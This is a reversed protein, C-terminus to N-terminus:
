RGAYGTRGRAQQQQGQAVATSARAGAPVKLAEREKSTIMDALVARQPSADRFRGAVPSTSGASGSAKLGAAAAAALVSPTRDRSEATGLAGPFGAFRTRTPSSIPSPVRHNGGSLMAGRSPSVPSTKASGLQDLLVRRQMTPSQPRAFDDIGAHPLHAAQVALPAGHMAPAPFRLHQQQRPSSPPSQQQQPVDNAKRLISARRAPVPSSAPTTRASLILPSSRAAQLAVVGIAAGMSLFLGTWAGHTIHLAAPDIAPQTASLFQFSLIGLALSALEDPTVMVPDDLRSRERWALYRKWARPVSQVAAAYALVVLTPPTWRSAALVPAIETARMATLGAVGRLGRGLLAQVCAQVAIAAGAASWGNLVAEAVQTVVQARYPLPVHVARRLGHVVARRTVALVAFISLCRLTEATDVLLVGESSYLPILLHPGLYPAALLAAAVALRGAHRKAFASWPLQRRHYGSAARRTHSLTAYIWAFVFLVALTHLVPVGFLETEDLRTFTPMAPGTGRHSKTLVVKDHFKVAAGSAFILYHSYQELGVLVEGVQFKHELESEDGVWVLMHKKWAVLDALLASARLRLKTIEPLAVARLDEPLLHVNAKLAPLQFFLTVPHQDGLYKAYTAALDTALRAISEYNPNEKAMLKAILARRPEQLLREDLEPDKLAADYEAVTRILPCAVRGAPTEAREKVCLDCKCLFHFNELEKRREYEPACVETYNITVEDGPKIPRLCRLAVRRGSFVTVANPAACDHNAISSLLFLSEAKGKMDDLHHIAMGNTQLQSMFYLAEAPPLFEGESVLDRAAFLARAMSEAEQTSLESSALERVLSWADHGSALKAGTAKMRLLRAFFRVVNPYTKKKLHACELKHQAWDKRQCDRGCYVVRSCASCAARKQPTAFCWSCINGVEEAFPLAVVPDECWLVEGVAFARTAIVGRGKGPIPEIRFAPTADKVPMCHEMYALFDASVCASAASSPAPAAAAAPASPSDRVFDKVHETFGETSITEVVKDSGSVAPAASSSSPDSLCLDAMAATAPMELPAAEGATQRQNRKASTVNRKKITSEM